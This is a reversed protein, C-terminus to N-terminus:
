LTAVFERLFEHASSRNDNENYWRARGSPHPILVVRATHPAKSVMCRRTCRIDVWELFAQKELGFASAVGRGVMLVIRGALLPRMSQAALKAPTMPFKDGDPNAGPFHNLLNVRDFAMLYEARSMGLLVQLRHGARNKPLPYMPFDPDTDRGPAQGIILPRQTHIKFTSGRVKLNQQVFEGAGSLAASHVVEIEKM